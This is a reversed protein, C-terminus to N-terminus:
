FIFISDLYMGAELIMFKSTVGLILNPQPLVDWGYIEYHTLVDIYAPDFMLVMKADFVHGPNVLWPKEIIETYFASQNFNQNDVLQWIDMKKYVYPTLSDSSEEGNVQMKKNARLLMYCCTLAGMLLAAFENEM